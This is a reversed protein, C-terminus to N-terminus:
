GKTPDLTEPGLFLPRALRLALGRLGLGHVGATHRLEYEDVGGGFTAGLDGAEWVCAM